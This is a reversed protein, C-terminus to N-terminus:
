QMRSVITGDLVEVKIEKLFPFLKYNIISRKAQEADELNFYHFFSYQYYEEKPESIIKLQVMYKDIKM